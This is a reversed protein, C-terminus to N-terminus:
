PTAPAAPVTTHRSRVIHLLNQLTRRSPPYAFALGLGGILGCPAAVAVQVLPTATALVALALTTLGWVGVWLPTHRLFSRWLDATSVPGSRGALYYYAPLQLTLNIIAHAIAVGRAGYPLGLLCGGLLLGSILISTHLSDRGRGQSEFLWCCIHASPYYIASIAFAAFIPVAEMWQAGLLVSVIPQALVFLIPTLLFWIIFSGEFVLLFVRRYRDSEVHLRSFVPLFVANIPSLFQQLPRRVLAAARTYLGIADPGFFRGILLNDANAAFSYFLSAATLNAGFGILGRINSGRTPLQPSWRACHWSLVLTLIPQLLQMAVLAWYGYNAYALLIGAVASFLQSVIQIFAITRFRLARSLLALHQVCAGNFLFTLSLAFAVQLLREDHFFWSIAPAGLILLVTSVAGIALNIWFLNSVQAHSIQPTQVTVTTLGADKLTNLFGMITLVIGLLGFESPSLLRALLVTSGITICFQSGQSLTTVVAGSLSKAKLDSTPSPPHFEERMAPNAKLALPVQAM